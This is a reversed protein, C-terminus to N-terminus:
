IQFEGQLYLGSSNTFTIAYVGPELESIDIVATAGNASMEITQHVVEGLENTITITVNGVDNLLYVTVADFDLYAELSPAAPVRPRGPDHTDGTLIIKDSVSTASLSYGFSYMSCILMFLTFAATNKLHRKM